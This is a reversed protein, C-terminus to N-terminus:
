RAAKEPMLIAIVGGISAVVALVAPVLSPDAQIRMAALITAAFGAWSSAEKMRAALFVWDIKM